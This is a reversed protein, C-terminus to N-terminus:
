FRPEAWLSKKLAETEYDFLLQNTQLWIFLQNSFVSMVFFLTPLAMNNTHHEIRLQLYPWIDFISYKFYIDTIAKSLACFM